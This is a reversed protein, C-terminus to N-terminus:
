QRAGHGNDTVTNIVGCIHVGWVRGLSGCIPMFESESYGAPHKYLVWGDM